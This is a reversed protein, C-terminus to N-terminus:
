KKTDVKLIEFHNKQFKIIGDKQLESLEKSLATREVGLYNALESQKKDNDERLDKIIEFIQKM